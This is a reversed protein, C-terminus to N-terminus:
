AALGRAVADVLPTLALVRLTSGPMRAMLVPESQILAFGFERAYWDVLQGRSMAIHEGFPNPWLVLVMGVDDAELCVKHMLTTAYGKRQQDAPVEVSTIERLGGRMHMPLANFANSQRVRLSAPGVRRSGTQM